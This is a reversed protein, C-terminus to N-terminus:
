LLLWAGFPRSLKPLPLLNMVGTMTLPLTRTPVGVPTASNPSNCYGGDAAGGGRMLAKSQPNTPDIVPIVLGFVLQESNPGKATVDGMKASVVTWGPPLGM